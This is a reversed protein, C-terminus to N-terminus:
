VPSHTLFPLLNFDPVAGVVAAALPLFRYKIYMAIFHFADYICIACVCACMRM